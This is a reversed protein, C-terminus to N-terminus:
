EASPAFLLNFNEDTLMKRCYQRYETQLEKEIRDMDKKIQKKPVGAPPDEYIKKIDRLKRAHRQYFRSIKEITRGDFKEKIMEVTTEPNNIPFGLENGTSIVNSTEDAPKEGFLANYQAENLVQKHANQFWSMLEASWSSFTEQSIKGDLRDADIQKKIYLMSTHIRALHKEKATSIDPIASRVHSMWQEHIRNAAQAERNKIVDRAEIGIEALLAEPYSITPTEAASAAAIGVLVASIICVGRCVARIKM